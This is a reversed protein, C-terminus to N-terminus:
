HCDPENVAFCCFGGGLPVADDRDSDDEQDRGAPLDELLAGTCDELRVGEEKRQAEWREWCAYGEDELGNQRELGSLLTRNLVRVVKLAPFLTRTLQAFTTDNTRTEHQVPVTCNQM